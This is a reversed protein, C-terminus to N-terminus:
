SGTIGPWSTPYQAPLVGFPAQSANPAAPVGLAQLLKDFNLGVATPFPGDGGIGGAVPLQSEASDGDPMAWGTEIGDGGNYMHAIVTEPTVQEGASVTPTVDEALYVVLGADPGDTLRYTIWGGGPWGENDATANTVVGDGLAYVPGAGAFDAGMDVRELILDSVSRLPDLYVPSAHRPPITQRATAAGTQPAAHRGRPRADQHAPHTIVGALSALALGGVTKGLGSARSTSTLTSRQAPAPSGPASAASHAIAPAAGGVILTTGAVAAAAVRTPQVAAALPSPKRHRRRASRVSGSSSLPKRHRAASRSV